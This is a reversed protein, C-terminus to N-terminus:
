DAPKTGDRPILIFVDPNPSDMGQLAPMCLYYMRKDSLVKIDAGPVRWVRQGPHFPIRTGITGNRDSRYTPMKKTTVLPHQEYRVGFYDRALAERKSETYVATAIGFEPVATKFAGLVMSFISAFVATRIRFKATKWPRDTVWDKHVNIVYILCFGLVIVAVQATTASEPLFLIGFGLIMLWLAIDMTYRVLNNTAGVIGRVTALAMRPATTLVKLAQEPSLFRALARYLENVEAAVNPPSSQPLRDPHLSTLDVLGQLEKEIEEVASLASKTFGQAVLATGGLMAGVAMLTISAATEWHFIVAALLVCSAVAFFVTAALIYWSIANIVPTSLRTGANLWQAVQTRNLPNGLYGAALLFATATIALTWIM